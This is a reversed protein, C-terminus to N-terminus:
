KHGRRGAATELKTIMASRVSNFSFSRVTVMDIRRDNEDDKHHWSEECRQQM